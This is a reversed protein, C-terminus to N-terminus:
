EPLQVLLLRDPTSLLVAGDHLGLLEGASAVVPLEWAPQGTSIDLETLGNPELVLPRDALRIDLAHPVEEAWRVRGSGLGVVAVRSSGPGVWGLRLEDRLAVRVSKARTPLQLRWRDRGDAAEVVVVDTRGRGTADTEVAAVVHDPGVDVVRATGSVAGLRTRWREAGTAPDLAHLFGSSTVVALLRARRPAAAVASVGALTTRWRVAGTHQHLMAVEGPRTIVPQENVIDVVGHPPLDRRWRQTGAVADLARVEGDAVVLLWPGAFGVVDADGQIGATSWRRRGTATDLGVLGGHAGADVALTAARSSAMAQVAAGLTARWRTRGSGLEVAVLDGRPGRPAVFAAADGVAVAPLSAGVRAVPVRWRM